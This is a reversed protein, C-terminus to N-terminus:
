EDSGGVSAAARIAAAIQACREREALVAAEAYARIQDALYIGGGFVQTLEHGPFFPEPLPPLNM